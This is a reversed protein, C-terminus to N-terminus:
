RNSAGRDAGERGSVGAAVTEQIGMQVSARSMSRGGRLGATSKKALGRM